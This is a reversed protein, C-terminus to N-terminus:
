PAVASLVKLGLRIAGLGAALKRPVVAERRPEFHEAATLAPGSSDDDAYQRREEPHFLEHELGCECCFGSDDDWTGYLPKRCVPNRCVAQTDVDENVGLVSTGLVDAWEDRQQM